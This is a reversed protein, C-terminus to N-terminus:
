PGMERWGAMSSTGNKREASRSDLGNGLTEKGHQSATWDLMLSAQNTNSPKHLEDTWEMHSECPWMAISPVRASAFGSSGLAM